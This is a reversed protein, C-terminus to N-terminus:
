SKKTLFQLSHCLLYCHYRLIVHSTNNFHIVYSIIVKQLQTRSFCIIFGYLFDINRNIDYVM